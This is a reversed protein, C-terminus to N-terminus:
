CFLRFNPLSNSDTTAPGQALRRAILVLVLSDLRVVLALRDLLVPSAMAEPSERIELRDMPAKRDRSAMKARHAPLDKLVRHAQRVQHVPRRQTSLKEPTERPVKTEQNELLVQNVLLDRLDLSAQCVMPVPSGPTEKPVLFVKPALLVPRDQPDLLVSRVRLNRHPLQYCHATEERHDLIERADLLEPDAMAVPHDPLDQLAPNVSAAQLYFFPQTNLLSSSYTLISCFKCSGGQATTTTTGGGNNGNGGGGNGHGNGGNGNGNGGGGGYGGAQRATRSSAPNGSLMQLQLMEKWMDRSRTKCFDVENQMFSQVSQIYNYVLPLTIVCAVVSVTGFAVACFAVPRLSRRKTITSPEM